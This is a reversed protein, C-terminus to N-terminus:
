SPATDLTCRACAKLIFTNATAIKARLDLLALPLAETMKVVDNLNNMKHINEPLAPEPSCQSPRHTFPASAIFM